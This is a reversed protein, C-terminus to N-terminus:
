KIFRFKQSNEIIKEIWGYVEESSYLNNGSSDKKKLLALAMLSFENPLSTAFVGLDDTNISVSLPFKTLGDLPFFRLIPHQDFRQFYGIRVNSSPCCEIGIQCLSIKKILSEQISRVIIAYDEPVRFSQVRRGNAKIDENFLYAFHIEKARKNNRRIDICEKDNLWNYSEWHLSGADEDYIHSNSAYVDYNDGRLLMAEYYDRMEFDGVNRTFGIRNTLKHFCSLLFDEVEPSLKINFKRSKFYLWAVNDLMWQAPLAIYNHRERYFAEPEVGLALAHGIRDGSELNLFMLAEDIARLGDVIDYFDEGVHFTVSLGVSKLYRFAQSFVEPRCGIESSAADIGKLKSLSEKEDFRWKESNFLSKLLLAQKKIRSSISAYGYVGDAYSFDANKIFHFLITWTLNGDSNNGFPDDDLLFKDIDKLTALLWNVDKINDPPAIRTEMAMVHNFNTAEWIPLLHLLRKYPKTLFRSKQDQYRKFNGFGNNDNIQIFFARIHNKILIYKYFLRSIESDAGRLISEFLSFLFRREGAFVAMPSDKDCIIYDLSDNAAYLSKIESHLTNTDASAIEENINRILSFDNSQLYQWINKRIIAASLLYRLIEPVLFNAVTPNHGNILISLKGHLGKTNNMLCVWNISFHDTSAFLHSHLESLHHKSFIHNLHINDNHAVTPWGCFDVVDSNETPNDFNLGIPTSSRRRFALFAAIVLDEGIMQTVERWRFLHRFRVQPERGNIRLVSEAFRFLVNFINPISNEDYDRQQDPLFVWEDRYLSYITRIQDDSLEPHRLRCEDLFVTEDLLTAGPLENVITRKDKLFRAAVRSFATDIFIRILDMFEVGIACGRKM